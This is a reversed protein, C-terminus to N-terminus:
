YASFDKLRISKGAEEMKLLNLVKRTMSFGVGHVKVPYTLKGDGTREYAWQWQNEGPSQIKVPSKGTLPFQMFRWGDFNLSFHEPWDYVPCGYGGTGSSIWIEGDADELELFIKGWTSNGKVWIGLTDPTGPIVAPQRMRIMGYEQMIDARPKKPILTIEICAGKEEDNAQKMSFSGPCLASLYLTDMPPELRKDQGESLYWDGANDMPAAVVANERGPFEEDPYVRTM